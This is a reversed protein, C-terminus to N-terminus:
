CEPALCCRVCCISSDKCFRCEGSWPQLRRAPSDYLVGDQWKVLSWIHGGLFLSPKCIYGSLPQSPALSHHLTPPASHPPWCLAFNKGSIDPSNQPKVKWERELVSPGLHSDSTHVWLIGTPERGMIHRTVMSALRTYRGISALRQFRFYALRLSGSLGHGRLILLTHSEADWM